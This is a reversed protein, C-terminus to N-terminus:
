AQSGCQTAPSQPPVSKPAALRQNEAKLESVQSKLGAITTQQAQCVEDMELIKRELKKLAQEYQQNPILQPAATPPASKLRKVQAELEEIIQMSPAYLDTMIRKVLDVRQDLSAPKCAAEIVARSIQDIIDLSSRSLRHTGPLVATPTPQKHSARHTANHISRQREATELDERFQM